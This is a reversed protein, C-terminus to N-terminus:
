VDERKVMISVCGIIKEDPLLGAQGADLSVVCSLYDMTDMLLPRMWFGWPWPYRIAIHEGTNDTSIKRFESAKVPMTMEEYIRSNKTNFCVHFLVDREGGWAQSTEVLTLAYWVSYWGAPLIPTIFSAMDCGNAGSFEVQQNDARWIGSATQIFRDKIDINM